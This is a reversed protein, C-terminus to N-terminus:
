EICALFFKYNDMKMAASSFRAVKFLFKHFRRKEGESTRTPVVISFRV